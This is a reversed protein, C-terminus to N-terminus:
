NKIYTFNIDKKSIPKTINRKKLERKFDCGGCSGGCNSKKATFLKIFQYLTYGSAYLVIVYTAFLQFSM